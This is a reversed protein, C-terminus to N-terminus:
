AGEIVRAVALTITNWRAQEATLRRRGAATIVYPVESPPQERLPGTARRGVASKWVSSRLSCRGPHSRFYM